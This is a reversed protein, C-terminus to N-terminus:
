RCNYQCCPRYVFYPWRTWGASVRICSQRCYSLIGTLISFRVQFAYHLATIWPSTAETMIDREEEYFMVQFVGGANLVLCRWWAFVIFSRCVGSGVVIFDVSVGGPGTGTPRSVGSQALTDQKRLTKMAFVDGSRRERVVHVQGFHGRGITKHVEFDAPGVRLRRLEAVVGRVAPSVLACAARTPPRSPM